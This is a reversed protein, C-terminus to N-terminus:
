IKEHILELYEDSWYPYIQAAFAKELNPLTLRKVLPGDSEQHLHANQPYLWESEVLNIDKLAPLYIEDAKPFNLLVICKLGLATALHMPGSIIGLFFECSQILRITDALALGTCDQVNELRVPRKGIQVFSLESHANIFKQILLRSEPYLQRARPHVYIRQWAVHGDGPEFHLVVRSSLRNGELHLFGKPKLEPELGFARQLRQMFHGNGMAYAHQLM